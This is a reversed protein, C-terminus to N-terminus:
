KCGRQHKRVKHARINKGEATIIVDTFQESSFFRTFLGLLNSQHNNWKLCYQQGATSSPSSSAASTSELGGGGLLGGGITMSSEVPPSKDGRSASM